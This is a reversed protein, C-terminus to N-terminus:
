TASLPLRPGQGRLQTLPRLYRFIDVRNRDLVARLVISPGRPLTHLDVKLLIDMSVRTAANACVCLAYSLSGFSSQVVTCGLFSRMCIHWAEVDKRIRMM